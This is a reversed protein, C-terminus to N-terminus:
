FGIRQNLGFINQDELEKIRDQMELFPSDKGSGMVAPGLRGHDSQQQRELAEIRKELKEMRQELQDIQSRQPQPQFKGKSM